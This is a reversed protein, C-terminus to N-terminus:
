KTNMIYSGNATAVVKGSKKSRAIARSGAHDCIGEVLLTDGSSVGGVYNVAMQITPTFVANGSVYSICGMTIDLATAIIGGHLNKAPNMQWDKVPFALIVSKTLFDATVLEMDMMSNITGEDRVRQKVFYQIREHFQKKDM